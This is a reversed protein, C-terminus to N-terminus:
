CSKWKLYSWPKIFCENGCKQVVDCMLHVSHRRTGTNWQLYTVGTDLVIDMELTCKIIERFKSKFKFYFETHKFLSTSDFANPLSQTRYADQLFAKCSRSTVDLNQAPALFYLSPFSNSGPHLQAWICLCCGSGSHSIALSIQLWPSADLFMYFM